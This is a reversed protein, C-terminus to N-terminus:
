SIAFDQLKVGRKELEEPTTRPDFVFGDFNKGTRTNVFDPDTYGEVANREGGSPLAGLRPDETRTNGNERNRFLMRGNGDRPETNEFCEFGQPLPGLFAEGLMAGHCYTEGIVITKGNAQERLIMPTRCGVLQVIHDNPQSSAPALGIYGERTTFM